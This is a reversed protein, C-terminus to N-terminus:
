ARVNASPWVCARPRDRVVSRDREIAGGTLEAVDVLHSATTGDWMAQLKCNM